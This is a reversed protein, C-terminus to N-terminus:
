VSCPVRRQTSSTGNKQSTLLSQVPLAPVMIASYKTPFAAGPIGDKAFLHKLARVVASTTQQNLQYVDPFNSYYDVAVLFQKGDITCLDVGIKEFPKMPMPHSALPEKQQQPQHKQCIACNETITRIDENMNLWYLIQRARRRSKETGMHGHHIKKLMEGRLGKPIVIRNGKLILDNMMTMEDRFTWYPVIMNNCEKRNKPWETTIVQKLAKMEPDSLTEEKIEKMKRDTVPMIKLQM